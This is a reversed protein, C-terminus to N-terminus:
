LEMELQAVPAFSRRHHPTLGLLNLAEQHEPTGYGVNQEWGYGPYRAALRRMLLDRAEKALIGAAAISYCLADGDVLADHTFGCEPLPLGDILIRFAGAGAAHAAREARAVARRFALATARRINFRDIGRISAAGLGVALATARLRPLLAQRQGSTLIKSDRVGRVRRCSPPFVVAAAVVPGALPGRGAEDVGILLCSNAWAGAEYRLSPATGRIHSRRAV